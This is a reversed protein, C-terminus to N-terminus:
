EESGIPDRGRANVVRFGAWVVAVCQAPRGRTSFTPWLGQRFGSGAPVTTGPGAPCRYLSLHYPLTDAATDTAYTAALDRLAALWNADRQLDHDAAIIASPSEANFLRALVGPATPRGTERSVALGNSELIPLLRSEYAAEFEDLREPPLQFSLRALTTNTHAEASM